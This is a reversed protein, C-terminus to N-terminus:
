ELIIQVAYRRARGFMNLLACHKEGKDDVNCEQTIHCKSTHSRGVSNNSVIVLLTKL